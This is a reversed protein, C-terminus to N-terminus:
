LTGVTTKNRGRETRSAKQWQAARLAERERAEEVKRQKEEWRRTYDVVWEWEAPMM